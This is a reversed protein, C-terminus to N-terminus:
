SYRMGQLIEVAPQSQGHSFDDRRASSRRSWCGHLPCKSMTTGGVAPSFRRSGAIVPLMGCLLRIQHTAPADTGSERQHGQQRWRDQRHHQDGIEGACPDALDFLSVQQSALCQCPLQCDGALEAHEGAVAFQQLAQGVRHGALVVDLADAHEVGLTQQQGGAAGVRGGFRALQGAMAHQPAAVAIADDFRDAGALEGDGVFQRFNERWRGVGVGLLEARDHEVDRQARQGAAAVLQKAIAHQDHDGHQDAADHQRAADAVADAARDALNRRGDCPDSMPIQRLPHRDGAAAAQRLQCAADIFHGRPQLFGLARHLAPDFFRGRLHAISSVIGLAGVQRLGAEQGGRTVVKALGHM